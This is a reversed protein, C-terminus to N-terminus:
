AAGDRYLAELEDVVRRLRAAVRSKATYISDVTMGCSEAAEEAPVGRLAVLEFARLTREDIRSREQVERWAEAAIAKREEEDWLAELATPDLRLDPQAELGGAPDVVGRRRVAARRRLDRARNQAIAVLWSRLRGRTRDYRGERMDRVFELLAQQAVDAADEDGLGLRRGVARLIPGYRDIFASWTPGDDGARLADLLATTTTPNTIRM